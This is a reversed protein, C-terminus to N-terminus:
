ATKLPSHIGEEREQMLSLVPEGLLNDIMTTKTVLDHGLEKTVRHVTAWWAERVMPIRWALIGSHTAMGEDLLHVRHPCSCHVFLNM